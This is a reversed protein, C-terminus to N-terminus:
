PRAKWPPLEASTGVHQYYANCAECLVHLDAAGGVRSNWRGSIVVAGRTECVQCKATECLLRAVLSSIVTGVTRVSGLLLGIWFAFLVVVIAIV